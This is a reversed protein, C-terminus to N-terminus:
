KRLPSLKIARVSVDRFLDTDAIKQTRTDKGATWIPTTTGDHHRLKLNDLYVKYTGPKGGRFVLGHRPLVGPASACLGIVRHEWEGLGGQTEPSQSQDRGFQDIGEGRKFNLVMSKSDNGKFPSYYVGRRPSDPAAAIDYEVYDTAFQRGDFSAFPVILQDKPKADATVTVTVELIDDDPSAPANLKSPAPLHTLAAGLSDAWENMKATLQQVVEPHEAARNTTEGVDSRIDYLENHDFFRHLRWEATRIADENHWAWYYSAVPSPKGDRLAPWINKGDLPRTEPMKLGAMSM